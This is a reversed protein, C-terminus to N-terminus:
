NRLSQQTRGEPFELNPMMAALLDIFSSPCLFTSNSLKQLKQQASLQLMIFGM